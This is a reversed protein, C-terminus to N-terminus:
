GGGGPRAPAGAQAPIPTPFEVECAPAVVRALAEAVEAESALGLWRSIRGRQKSLLAFGQRALPALAPTALRESWERYDELAYLCMIWANGGRYVGGDDGVVVLEEPHESGALTPFLRRAAGSGAAVFALDILTEQSELWRRARRCLGCRHDYIITLQRM